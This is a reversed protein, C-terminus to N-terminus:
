STMRFIPLPLYESTKSPIPTNDFFFTTMFTNFGTFFRLILLSILIKSIKFPPGFMTSSRSTTLSGAELVGESTLFVFLFNFFSSFFYNCCVQKESHLGFLYKLLNLIYIESALERREGIKFNSEVDELKELYVCGVVVFYFSICYSIIYIALEKQIQFRRLYKNIRFRQALSLKFEM